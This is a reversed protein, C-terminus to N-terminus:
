NSVDAGHELAQAHGKGAAFHLQTGHYNLPDVPIGRSLLLRIAESHGTDSTCISSFRFWLMCASVIFTVCILCRWLVNSVTQIYERQCKKTLTFRNADVLTRARLEHM